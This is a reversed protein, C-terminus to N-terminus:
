NTVTVPVTASGCPSSVTVSFNGRTNNLSKVTFTVPTTGNANQSTPTVSLNGASVSATISKTGTSNNLKVSLAGTGGNKRISLATPTASITCAPAPTPTPTPTSMPTPTPTPNPTPTASPTPVPTPTASPTASPTPTVTPNPTPTPPPDSNTNSNTNGNTNTNANGNTNSNSNANANANANANGNSNINGININPVYDEYVDSNMTVDGSGTVDVSYTNQDGGQDDTLSFSVSVNAHPETNSGITRYTRGRWDFSIREPNTVIAVGPPMTVTRRENASIVGDGNLDISVIYSNAGVVQVSAMEPETGATGALRSAHRRVSDVRAKELFAAFERSAGSVRMNARATRINMLALTGVIAMIGLMIVAQTLTFGRESQRKTRMSM